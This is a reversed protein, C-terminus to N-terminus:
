WEESTIDISQLESIQYELESMLVYEDEQRVPRAAPPVDCFPDIQRARKRVLYKQSKCTEAVMQVLMARGEVLEKRSPNRNGRSRQLALIMRHQSETVSSVYAYDDEACPVEFLVNTIPNLVKVSTLRQRDVFAVISARAGLHERLKDLEGSTYRLGLPEIGGSARFTFTEPRLRLLALQEPTFRIAPSHKDYFGLWRQKATLGDEGPSNAYIKTLWHRYLPTFGGITLVATALGEDLADRDGKPGAWGPLMPCFDNKIRFNFHEIVTKETAGYPRARSLLLREAESRHKMAKGVNYSANDVLMRAGM